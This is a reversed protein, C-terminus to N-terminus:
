KRDKEIENLFLDLKYMTWGLRDAIETFPKDKWENNLLDKICDVSVLKFNEM